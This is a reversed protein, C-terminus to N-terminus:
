KVFEHICRHKGASSTPKILIECKWVKVIECIRSHMTAGKRPLWLPTSIRFGDKELIDRASGRCSPFNVSFYFFCVSFYLFVWYSFWFWFILAPYIDLVCGERPYRMCTESMDSIDPIEPTDRWCEPTDRPSGPWGSFWLFVKEEKPQWM